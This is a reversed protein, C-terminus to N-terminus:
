GGAPFPPPEEPGFSRLVRAPVRASAVEGGLRGTAGLRAKPALRVPPRRSTDEGNSTRDDTDM